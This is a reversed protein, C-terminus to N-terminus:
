RFRTTCPSVNAGSRNLDTQFYVALDYRSELGLKELLRTVHFKVTNSSVELAAAIQEYSGGNVMACGIEVERVTLAVTRIRVKGDPRGPGNRRGPVPFAALLTHPPLVPEGHAVAGLVEVLVERSRLHAHSLLTVAQSRIAALLARPCYSPTLFVRPSDELGAPPLNPPVTTGDPPAVLVVDPDETWRDGVPHAWIGECGDMWAALASEMLRSGCVVVVEIQKSV